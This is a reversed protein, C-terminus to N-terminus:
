EKLRPIKKFIAEIESATQRRLQDEYVYWFERDGEPKGTMARVYVVQYIVRGNDPDISSSGITVPYGSLKMVATDGEGFKM